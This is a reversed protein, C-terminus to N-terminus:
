PKDEATPLMRAEQGLTAKKREREKRLKLPIVRQLRQVIKRRTQLM